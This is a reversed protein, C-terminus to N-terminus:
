IFLWALEGDSLTKHVLRSLRANVENMRRVGSVVVGRRLHCHPVVANALQQQLLGDIDRTQWACLLL